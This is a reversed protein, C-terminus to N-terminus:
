EMLEELADLHETSFIGEPDAQHLPSDQPVYSYVLGACAGALTGQRTTLPVTARSGLENGAEAGKMITEPNTREVLHKYSTPTIREALYRSIGVSAGLRETNFESLDFQKGLAVGALGRDILEDPDISLSSGSVDNHAKLATGSLASLAVIGPTSITTFKAYKVAETGVRIGTRVSEKWDVQERASRIRDLITQDIVVSSPTPGEGSGSSSSRTGGNSNTFDSTQRTQTEGQLRSTQDSTAALDEIFRVLSNVESRETNPHLYVEFKATVTTLKLKYVADVDSTVGGQEQVNWEYHAPPSVDAEIDIIRNIQVAALADGGPDGLVVLLREDTAIVIPRYGEEAMMAYVSPEDRLYRSEERDRVIIYKNALLIYHPDESPSLYGLLPRDHSRRKQLDDTSFLRSIFGSKQATLREASVTDSEAEAALQEAYEKEWWYADEPYSVWGTEHGCEPCKSVVSPLQEGCSVCASM